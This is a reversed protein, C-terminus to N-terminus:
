CPTWPSVTYFSKVEFRQMGLDTLIGLWLSARIIIHQRILHEFVSERGQVAQVTDLWNSMDLKIKMM